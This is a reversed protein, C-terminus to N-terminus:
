ARWSRFAVHAGQAAGAGPHEELRDHLWEFWEGPHPSGTSRRKQEVWPKLKRWSTRVLGGVMEDAVELPVIRHFVMYGLNEVMTYVVNAASVVEPGLAEMQSPTIGDALAYVVDLARVATPDIRAQLFAMAAEERRRRENHRLQFVAFVLGAAVATATTANAILNLEGTDM